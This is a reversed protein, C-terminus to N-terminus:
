VLYALSQLESTHEESRLGVRRLSVDLAGSGHDEGIARRDGLAPLSRRKEVIERRAGVPQRDLGESGRSLLAVGELERCAHLAILDSSRRTPFSRLDAPS